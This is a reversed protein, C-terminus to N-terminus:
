KIIVVEVRRNQARGEPTDNSAVPSLPGRGEPALRTNAIGYEKVLANVVSQARDKSLKLNYDYNGTDDTYGIVAVNWEPHERLAEALEGVRARGGPSLKASNTEFVVGGTLTVKGDRELAAKIDDPSARDVDFTKEQGVEGETECGALFLAGSAALTIMGVRLSNVALKMM